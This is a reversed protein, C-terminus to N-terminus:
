WEARGKGQRAKGGGARESQEMRSPAGVRPGVSAANAQRTECLEHGAPIM